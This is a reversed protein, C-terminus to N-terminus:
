VQTAHPSYLLSIQGQQGQCAKRSHYSAHKGAITVPLRSGIALLHPLLRATPPYGGERICCRAQWVAKSVSERTPPPEPTRLSGSPATGQLPTYIGSLSSFARVRM